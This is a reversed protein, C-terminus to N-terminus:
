ATSIGLHTDGRAATPGHGGSPGVVRVRVGKCAGEVEAGKHRVSDGFMGLVSVRQNPLHATPQDFYM